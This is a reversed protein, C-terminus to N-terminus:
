AGDLTYIYVNFSLNELVMVFIKIALVYIQVNEKWM